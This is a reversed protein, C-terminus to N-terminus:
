GVRAGELIPESIASQLWGSFLAAVALSAIMVVGLIALYDRLREWPLYLARIYVSGLTDGHEVVRRFVHLQDGEIRYGDAAPHEPFALAELGPKTYTAFLEGGRTYLAAGLVRPRVRM